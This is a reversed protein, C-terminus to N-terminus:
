AEARSQLSIIEVLSVSSELPRLRLFELGILIEDYDFGITMDVTDFWLALPLVIDDQIM